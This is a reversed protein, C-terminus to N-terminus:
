KMIGLRQNLIVLLIPYFLQRKKKINILLIKKNININKIKLELNIKKGIIKRKKIYNSEKDNLKKYSTNSKSNNKTRKIKILSPM